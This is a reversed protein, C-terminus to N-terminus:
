ASRGNVPLARRAWLPGPKVQPKLEVVQSPVIEYGAEELKERLRASTWGPSVSYMRMLLDNYKFENPLTKVIEQWTVPKAHGNGNSRGNPPPPLDPFNLAGCSWCRVQRLGDEVVLVTL